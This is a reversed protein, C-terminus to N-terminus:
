SKSPAPTKESAPTEAKPKGGRLTFWAGVICIVAIVLAGAGRLPRTANARKPPSTIQGMFAPLSHAPEIFYIVAVVILLVAIIALVVAAITKGSSRGGPTSVSSM